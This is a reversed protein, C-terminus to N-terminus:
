LHAYRYLFSVIALRLCQNWPRFTNDDYGTTIGKEAAWSIAKDFDLNGTMDKFSAMSSPTPKGAYRWLFTVIAARNCTAWPKFLNGEYGTTIGNESAWSIATDFDANGTMDKFSAQKSPMPRGALRWLFTVVAARNCNNNPRFTNDDYGTTIGEDVAWYVPEYYFLSPNTVDNFLKREVIVEVDASAGSKLTVTVTTVGEKVGTIRGISSVTAVETDSSEWSVVSDGSPLGSITIRKSQGMLLTVSTASLGWVTVYVNATLGSKLTVTVTTKGTKKATITGDSGVTAITTDASKWSDVSDGSQLGSVTVTSAQGVLLSINSTSLEITPVTVTVDATLGSALTVTVTTEGGAVATITGSTSVTAIAPDASTWSVVKDESQLGSVTIAKKTNPLITVATQSLSITPETDPKGFGLDGMSMGVETSLLEEWKEFSRSLWLNARDNVEEDTNYEAKSVIFPITGTGDYQSPDLISADAFTIYEDYIKESWRLSPAPKFGYPVKLDLLNYLNGEGYHQAYFGFRFINDVPSYEILFFYSIKTGEATTRNILTSIAYYDYGTGTSHYGYDLLYDRLENYKLETFYNYGVLAPEDTSQATLEPFMQLMSEYDAVADASGEESYGPSFYARNIEDINARYADADTEELILEGEALEESASDSIIIDEEAASEFLDAEPVMEEEIINEDTLEEATLASDDEAPEEGAPSLTDEQGGYSEEEEIDLPASETLDGDTGVVPLTEEPVAMEEVYGSGDGDSLLEANVCFVAELSLVATLFLASLKKKRM